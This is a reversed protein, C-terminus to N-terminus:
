GCVPCSSTSCREILDYLQAPPRGSDIFAVVLPDTGTLPRLEADYHPNALFRVDFLLDADRM